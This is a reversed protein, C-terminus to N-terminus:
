AQHFRLPLQEGVAVVFVVVSNQGIAVSSPPQSNFQCRSFAPVISCTCSSTFFPKPRLPPEGAAGEARIRTTGSRTCREYCGSPRAAHTARHFAAFRWPWRRRKVTMLMVPRNERSRRFIVRLSRRGDRPYPVKEVQKRAERQGGLGVSLGTGMIESKQMGTHCLQRKMM